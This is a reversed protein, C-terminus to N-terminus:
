EHDEQPLEFGFEQAIEVSLIDSVAEFANECAHITQRQPEGQEDTWTVVHYSGGGFHATEIECKVDTIKAM